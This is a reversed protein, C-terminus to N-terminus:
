TLPVDNKSGVKMKRKLSEVLIEYLEQNKQHFEIKENNIRNLIYKLDSVESIDSIFYSLLMQSFMTDGNELIEFCEPKIKNLILKKKDRELDFFHKTLQYDQLQLFRSM